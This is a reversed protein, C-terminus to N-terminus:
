ALLRDYAQELKRVPLETFSEEVIQRARQGMQHRLKDDRALLRTYHVLGALDEREVLFGNEGHRIIEPIGGDRTSIFDFM